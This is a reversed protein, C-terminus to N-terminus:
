GALARKRRYERMKQALYAAREPTRLHRDRTRGNVVVANTANVVVEGNVVVCGRHIWGQNPYFEKRCGECFNKAGAPFSMRPPM